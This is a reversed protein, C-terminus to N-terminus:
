GQWVDKTQGVYKVITDAKQKLLANTIDRNETALGMMLAGKETIYFQSPQISWNRKLLALCRPSSEAPASGLNITMWVYTGSPSVEFAVPINFDSTTFVVEYKEKGEESNLDKVEYGLQVLTDKLSKGDLQRPTQHRFGLLALSLVFILALALPGFRKM